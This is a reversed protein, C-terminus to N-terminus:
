SRLLEIYKDINKDIDWPLVREIAKETFSDILDTSNICHVMAKALTSVKGVPVLIGHKVIEIEDILTKDQVVDSLIERPGFDCDTAIIPLKCALAEVLVNPSGEYDSCLVFTNAKLMYPIPNNVQGFTQVKNEIGLEIILGKLTNDDTGKGILWLECKHHHLKSFAKLLLTHNKARGNNGVHIFIFHEPKTLSEPLPAKSLQFFQETDFPNPIYNINDPSMKLQKELDQKLGLSPVIVQDTYPYFRKMLAKILSRKFFHYVKLELENNNVQNIFVKGKWGIAKNIACLLNPIYDFAYTIDLNNKRSFRILRFLILPLQLWSDRLLAFRSGLAYVKVEQPLEYEIVTNFLFLEVQFHSSLAKMIKQAKGEAGGKRLSTLVFAIKKSPM